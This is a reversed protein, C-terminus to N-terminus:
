AWGEPLDSLWNRFPKFWTETLDQGQKAAFQDPELPHDTITVRIKGKGRTRGLGARRLARVCAALLARDDPGAADDLWLPAYLKVGRIVVRTTRLTEDTPVGYENVATQMRVTTLSDLIDAAPLRSERRLYAVLDPPMGADGVWM